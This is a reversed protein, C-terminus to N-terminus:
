ALIRFDKPNIVRFNDTITSSFEDFRQPVTRSLFGLVADAFDRFKAYTKNHTVNERMVKWLREIPNLHPCYSPVFHLVIRRGPQKMWDQVARAHHYRANDLFVHIRRMTSHSQELAEFLAITSDADVTQVDLINTRGTELDIAGHLNLRDRGSAAPLACRQGRPLWRGAPKAQHTPHVADVYVVAEDPDLSNRLDEHADIFKQQTEADIKGPVSEPKKWDFGIRNMLKIIGSRSYDLGFRELIFQGIETTSTPLVETAWVSLEDIQLPALACSGGNLDFLVLAEVGGEQFSKLWTRVTSDDLFLAEAIDAFSWGRDLLLIANARRAIRHEETGDRAIKVLDARDKPSLFNRHPKV